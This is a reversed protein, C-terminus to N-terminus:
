WWGLEILADKFSVGGDQDTDTTTSHVVEYNILIEIKDHNGDNDSDWQRVRIEEIDPYDQYLKSTTQIGFNARIAIAINNNHRSADSPGVASDTADIDGDGDTDYSPLYMGDCEDHGYPGVFQLGDPTTYIQTEPEAKEVPVDEATNSSSTSICGSNLVAAILILACLPKVYQKITVKFM